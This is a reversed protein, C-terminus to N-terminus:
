DEAGMDEEFQKLYGPHEKDLALLTREVLERVIKAKPLEPDTNSSILPLVQGAVKVVHVKADKITLDSHALFEDRLKLLKHHLAEDTNSLSAPFRLRHSRRNAGRSEKYPKAYDILAMQYAAQWIVPPANDADELERITRWARGLSTICEQFHIYSEDDRNM